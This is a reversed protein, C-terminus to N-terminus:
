TTMLMLHPFKFNSSAERIWIISRRDVIDLKAAYYALRGVINCNPHKQLLQLADSLLMLNGEYFRPNVYFTMTKTKIKRGILEPDAFAYLIQDPSHHKKIFVKKGSIQQKIEEWVANKPPQLKTGVNQSKV